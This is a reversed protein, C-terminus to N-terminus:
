LKNKLVWYIGKVNTKWEPLLFVLTIEEVLDFITIVAASYFLLYPPEKMFFVLILFIGLVIAATKALYTHFSSIKHYRILAIIIQGLFLTILVSVIIYNDMIFTMKFKLLGIIAAVITMDDAISDLKSGFISNVKYHRALTGDILDTFFSFALLWKFWNINNTLILIILLSSVILRYM